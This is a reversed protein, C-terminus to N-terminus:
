QSTSAKQGLREGKYPCFPHIRPKIAIPQSDAERQVAHTQPGELHQRHKAKIWDALPGSGTAIASPGEM